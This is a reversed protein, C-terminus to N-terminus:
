GHAKATWGPMCVRFSREPVDICHYGTSDWLKPRSCQVGSERDLELIGDHRKKENALPSACFHPLDVQETCSLAYMSTDIDRGLFHTM